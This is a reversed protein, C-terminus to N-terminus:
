SKTRLLKKKSNVITLLAKWFMTRCVQKKINVYEIRMKDDNAQREESLSEKYTREKVSKYITPVFITSFIILIVSLSLFLLNNKSIFNKNKKM